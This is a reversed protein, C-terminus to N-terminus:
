LSTLHKQIFRQYSNFYSNSTPEAKGLPPM